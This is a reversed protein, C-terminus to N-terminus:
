PWERSVSQVHGALFCGLKATLTCRLGASGAVCIPRRWMGLRAPTVGPDHRFSHIPFRSPEGSLQTTNGTFGPLSFPATSRRWLEFRAQCGARCGQRSAGRRTAGGLLAAPRHKGATTKGLAISCAVPAFGLHPARGSKTEHARVSTDAADLSMEACPPRRGRNGHAPLLAPAASVLTQAM